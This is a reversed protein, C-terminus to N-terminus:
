LYGYLQEGKRRADAAEELTDYWGLSKQKGNVTIYARYRGDKTSCVGKVGSKNNRRLPMNLASEQPSVFRLNTRRNDSKDRNIHDVYANDPKNEYTLAMVCDHLRIVVGGINIAPYGNSRCWKRNEIMHAVDSDVLFPEGDSGFCVAFRKFDVYEIGDNPKSQKNSKLANRIYDYKM